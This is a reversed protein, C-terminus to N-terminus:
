PFKLDAKKHLIKTKIDTKLCIKPNTENFLNTPNCGLSQDMQPLLSLVKNGKRQHYKRKAEICSAMLSGFRFLLPPKKLMMRRGSDIAFSLAHSGFSEETVVVNLHKQFPKIVNLETM